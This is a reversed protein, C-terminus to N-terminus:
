IEKGVYKIVVRRKIGDGMSETKLDSATSLYEHIIRRDFAPMPDLEISSKFYRAREAMMHAITKVNEVRKKHYNNIDIVINWITKEGDRSEGLEREAIRRVIHNIAALAEANKGLYLQGDPSSFSAWLTVGDESLTYSVEGAYIGTNKLFDGVTQKLVAENMTNTPQKVTLM